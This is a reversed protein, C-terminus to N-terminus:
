QLQEQLARNRQAASDQIMREVNKAKQIPASQQISVPDKNIGQPFSKMFLTSVIALYAIVLILRM